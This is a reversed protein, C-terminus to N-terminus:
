RFAFVRMPQLLIMGKDRLDRDFHRSSRRQRPCPTPNQLPQLGGRERASQPYTLGIRWFGSFATLTHIYRIM